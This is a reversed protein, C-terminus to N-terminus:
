KNSENISEDWNSEVNTLIISSEILSPSRPTIFLWIVLLLRSIL